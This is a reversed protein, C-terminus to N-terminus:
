EFSYKRTTIYSMILGSFESAVKKGTEVVEEHNLPRGLIGAAMNTICSIGLVQIGLSRAAIVEPVTSMGVMDAGLTRLMRIEAPTEYTPGSLAAYVGEKLARASAAHIQRRMEPDYARSMDPFRPGWDPIHPGILPNTGMLNLHDKILVLEGPHFSANVAGAANTVVLCNVGLSHLLFVPMVIDDTGWGEYYHFRGALIVVDGSLKLVGQHGKVTPQPFGEIESYAISPGGLSDVFAGLGSGLVVGIKPRRALKGISNRAQKVREVLQLNM